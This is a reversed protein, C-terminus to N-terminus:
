KLSASTLLKQNKKSNESDPLASVTTIDVLLKQINFGSAAFSQRLQDMVNPGYAFVPQKVVMHFLQDIFARHADDNNAAFEAVDRPGSLKVV